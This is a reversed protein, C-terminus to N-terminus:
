IDLRGATTAHKIIVTFFLIDKRGVLQVSKSSLNTLSVIMPMTGLEVM